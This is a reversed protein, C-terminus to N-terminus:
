RPDGHVFPIALIGNAITMSCRRAQRHWPSSHGLSPRCCAGPSMLPMPLMPPSRRRGAAHPADPSGPGGPIIVAIPKLITM